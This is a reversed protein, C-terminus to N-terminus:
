RLCEKSISFTPCFQASPDVPHFTPYFSYAPRLESSPFSQAHAHYPYLLRQLSPSEQWSTHLTSAARSLGNGAATGHVSLSNVSKDSNSLMSSISNSLLSSPPKYQFLLLMALPCPARTEGLVRGQEEMIIQSFSSSYKFCSRYRELKRFTAIYIYTDLKLHLLLFFRLWKGLTAATVPDWSAIFKTQLSYGTVSRTRLM